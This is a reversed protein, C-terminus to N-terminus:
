AVIYGLDSLAQKYKDLVSALTTQANLSTNSVIKQALPWFADPGFHSGGGVTMSLLEMMEFYTNNQVSMITDVYIKHDFRAELYVEYGEDPTMVTGDAIEKPDDGLGSQLDYIIGFAIPSTINNKGNQINM